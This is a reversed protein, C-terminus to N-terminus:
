RAVYAFKKPAGSRNTWFLAQQEIEARCIVEGPRDALRLCRAIILLYRAAKRLTCRAMGQEALHVLFRQREEILPGTRQRVLAGPEEFLRDFM